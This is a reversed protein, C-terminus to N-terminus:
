TFHLLKVFFRFLLSSSQLVCLLLSLKFSLYFFCQSDHLSHTFHSYYSRSSSSPFPSCTLSPLGHFFLGLAASLLTHTTSVPFTHYTFHLLKYPSFVPLISFVHSFSSWLPSNFPSSRLGSPLPDTSSVHRHICLHYPPSHSIQSPTNLLVHLSRSPKLDHPRSSATHSYRLHYFAHISAHPLWTNHFSTPYDM